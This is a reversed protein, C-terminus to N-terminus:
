LTCSKMADIVFIVGVLREILDVVGDAARAKAKAKARAGSDKM